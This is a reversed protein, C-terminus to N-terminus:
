KTHPLPGLARLNGSPFTPKCDKLFYLKDVESVEIDISSGLDPVNPNNYPQVVSISIEITDGVEVDDFQGSAEVTFTNPFWLNELRMGVGEDDYWVDIVRAKTFFDVM